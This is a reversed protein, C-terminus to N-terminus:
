GMLMLVAMLVRMPVPVTMLVAVLMPVAAMLVLVVMHVLAAGHHLLISHVSLPIILLPPLQRIGKDLDARMHLGDHTPDLTSSADAAPRYGTFPSVSNCPDDLMASLFQLM